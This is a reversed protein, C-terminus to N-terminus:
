ERYEGSVRENQIKLFSEMKQEVWKAEEVSSLTDVLKSDKNERDILNVGYNYRKGRKGKHIYQKVYLQKIDHKLIDKNGRWFIPKHKVSVNDYDITIMTSNFIHALGVYFIFLGASMSIAAFLWIFIPIDDDIEESYGWLMDATIATWVLAFVLGLYGLTKNWKYKIVLSNNSEEVQMNAPIPTLKEKKDM